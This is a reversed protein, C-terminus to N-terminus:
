VREADSAVWRISVRRLHGGREAVKEVLDAAALVIGAQKWEVRLQTEVRTNCRVARVPTPLGRRSDPARVHARPHHGPAACPVGLGHGDPPLHAFVHRARRHGLAGGAAHEHPVRGARVSGARPDCECDAAATTCSHHSVGSLWPLCLLLSLVLMCRRVYPKEAREQDFCPKFKAVSGGSCSQHKARPTSVKVAGAILLVLVNVEDGHRILRKGTKATLCKSAYAIHTIIHDPLLRLQPVSYMAKEARHLVTQKHPYIVRRYVDGSLVALEASSTAFNVNASATRVGRAEFLSIEGFCMGPTMTAFYGNGYAALSVYGSILIYFFDGVDGQRFIFDGAKHWEYVCSRAIEHLAPEPMNANAFYKVSRLWKRIHRVDAASRSEPSIRLRKHIAHTHALSLLSSNREPSCKRVVFSTPEDQTGRVPLQATAAALPTTSSHKTTDLASVPEEEFDVHERWVRRHTRKQQMRDLMTIYAIAIGLRRLVIPLPPLAAVVEVLEYDDHLLNTGRAADAAQAVPFRIVKIKTFVDGIRRYRESIRVNIVSSDQIEYSALEEDGELLDGQFYLRQDEFPVGFERQLMAQLSILSLSRHVRLRQLESFGPIHFFIEFVLDREGRPM